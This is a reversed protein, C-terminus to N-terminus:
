AQGHDEFLPAEEIVKQVPKPVQQRIKSQVFQMLGAMIHDKGTPINMQGVTDDLALVLLDYLEQKMEANMALEPKQFEMELVATRIENSLMRMGMGWLVVIFGTFIGLTVIEM